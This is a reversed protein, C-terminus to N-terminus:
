IIRKAIISDLIKEEMEEMIKAEEDKKHDYGLLHLTGHILMYAAHEVFDIKLSQSQLIITEASLVVDGLQALYSTDEIDDLNEIYKFALVNTAKDIGRYSLNLERIFRDNTLLISVEIKLHNISLFKLIEIVVKEIFKEVNKVLDLWLDFGVNVSIKAIMCFYQLSTGFLLIM